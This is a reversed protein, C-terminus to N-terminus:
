MRCCCKKQSICEKYWQTNTSATPNHIEFWHNPNEPNLTPYVLTQLIVCYDDPYIMNVTYIHFKIQISEYDITSHLRYIYSWKGSGGCISWCQSDTDYPELCYLTKIPIQQTGNPSIVWNTTDADDM